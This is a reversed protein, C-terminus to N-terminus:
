FSLTDHKSMFTNVLTCSQEMGNEWLMKKVSFFVTKKCNKNALSDARLAERRNLPLVDLFIFIVLFPGSISLDLSCSTNVM